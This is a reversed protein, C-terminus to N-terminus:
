FSLMAAHLTEVPIAGAAPVWKDPDLAPDIASVGAAKCRYPQFNLPSIVVTYQTYNTASNWPTAGAAAAAANAAATANGAATTATTQATDIQGIATNLQDVM